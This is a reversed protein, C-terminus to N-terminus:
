RAVARLRRFAAKGLLERDQAAIQELAAGLDLPVTAGESRGVTLDLVRLFAAAKAATDIAQLLPRGKEDSGYLGYEVMSWCDFPVLFRDVAEVATVFAAGAAAPIRAFQRGVGPSALSREQPWTTELLPRVAKELLGEPTPAGKSRSRQATEVLFRYVATAGNARVEDEVSRLAQTISQIGVVPPRDENLAHLCEVVLSFVFSSRAARAIRTDTVRVIVDSGLVELVDKFLTKRGLARWLMRADDTDQKLPAVLFESAWQEDARLFVALHELLRHRTILGARGTSVELANRMATQPAAAPFAPKARDRANFASFFGDLMRGVPPNLTDIETAEDADAKEADPDIAVSLEENESQSMEGNTVRVAEPWVKLWASLGNQGAAVHESWQALWASIGYVAQAIAEPPMANIAAIVSTAEGSADVANEVRHRWGLMELVNPFSTASAPDAGFARAVASANGKRGMWNSAEASKDDRWSTLPTVLAKELAKLLESGNLEDFSKSVPAAHLSFDETGPLDHDIRVMKQLEPHRPLLDSLFATQEDPLQGGALVIRKLERGSIFERARKVDEDAAKKPWNSRPPGRRLRKAIASRVPPSLDRFRVARLEALEPLAYLDWFSKDDSQGLVDEIESSPVLAADRAMATWLRFHIVSSAARWQQVSARAAEPNLRAIREVVGFLLKVTPAIGHHFDDVEDRGNESEPKRHFYVRYLQGIKWDARQEDWGISRATYIAAQLNANLADALAQLFSLDAEHPVGFFEPSIVDGSVLQGSLLDDVKGPKAKAGRGPTQLKLWPAVLDAINRVVAASRSGARLEHQIRHQTHQYDLVQRSWSAIILRWASAWPEVGGKILYREIAESLGVRKARNNGGEDLAWQITEARQLREEVFLAAYQAASREEASLDRWGARM